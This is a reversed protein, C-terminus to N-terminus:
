RRVGYKKVPKVVDSGLLNEDRNPSGGCLELTDVWVTAYRRKSGDDLAVDKFEMSGAVAVKQGKTLYQSVGDFRNGACSIDFYNTLDKGRNDAISSVYLPTDKGVNEVDRTLNGVICIKNM